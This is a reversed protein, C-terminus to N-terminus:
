NNTIIKLVEPLAYQKLAEIEGLYGDPKTYYLHLLYSDLLIRPNGSRVKNNLIHWM